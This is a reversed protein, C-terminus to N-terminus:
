AEAYIMLRSKAVLLGVLASVSVRNIAATSPWHTYLSADSAGNPVSDYVGTMKTQAEKEVDTDFALPVVGVAHAWYNALSNSNAVASTHGLNIGSSTLSGGGVDVVDFSRYTSSSDNNFRIVPGNTTSSGAQDSRVRAIFQLHKAWAPITLVGSDISAAAAAISGSDYLLARSPAPSNVSAAGAGVLALTRKDTITGLTGSGAPISVQALAIANNPVAPAAPTAAPTGKVVALQWLKSVGSFTADKVQAVVLDIRPNTADAADHQLLVPADNRVRYAPQRDADDDGKVWAAGKAVSSKLGTGATVLLDGSGVVGEGMIDRYPLGLEAAGYADDQDLYLPPNIEAM